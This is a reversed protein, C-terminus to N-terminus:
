EVLIHTSSFGTIEGLGIRDLLETCAPGQVPDLTCHYILTNADIFVADGVVLDAFTM